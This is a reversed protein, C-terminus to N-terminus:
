ADASPWAWFTIDASGDNYSLATADVERDDVLLRLSTICGHKDRNAGIISATKLDGDTLDVSTPYAEDGM